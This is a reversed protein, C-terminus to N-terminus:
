RTQSGLKRRTAELYNMAIRYDRGRTLDSLAEIEMFKFFRARAKEDKDMGCEAMFTEINAREDETLASLSQADDDENKTVINFALTLAYRRCFSVTAGYNQVVNRYESKDLPLTIRRREEHGAKHSIIIIVTISTESVIDSDYDVSFGEATYIPRIAEEIDELAAFKSRVKGKVEIVRRRVIPPIKEQVRSKAEKFLRKAEDDQIERLIALLERLKEPNVREDVLAAALFQTLTATPGLQDVKEPLKDIAHEGSAVLEGQVPKENM